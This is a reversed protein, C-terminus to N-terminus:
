TMLKGLHHADFIKFDNGQELRVIVDKDHVGIAIGLAGSMNGELVVVRDGKRPAVPKIQTLSINSLTEGSQLIKIDVSNLSGRLVVGTKAEGLHTTTVMLNERTLLNMGPLYLNLLFLPDTIM